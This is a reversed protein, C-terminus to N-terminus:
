RAVEEGEEKWWREEGNGKGERGGEVREGKKKKIERGGEREERRM